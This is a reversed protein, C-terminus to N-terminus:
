VFDKYRHSEYGRARVVVGNAVYTNYPEDLYLDYRMAKDEQVLTDTWKKTYVKDGKLEEWLAGAPKLAEYGKELYEKQTCIPHGPDIILRQNPENEGLSGPEFIIADHDQGNEPDEFKLTLWCVGICKVPTYEDLNKGSLVEDGEQIEDIRKLGNKTTVLSAGHLCVNTIFFFGTSTTGSGLAGLTFNIVQNVVRGTNFTITLTGVPGSTTMLPSYFNINPTIDFKVQNAIGNNLPPSFNILPSTFTNVNAANGFSFTNSTQQPTIINYTFVGTVNNQTITLGSNLTVKFVASTTM